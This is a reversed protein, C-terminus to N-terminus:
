GGQTARILLIKDGEQVVRNWDSQAIVENNVAVALGQSDLALQMLTKRIDIGKELAVLEDNIHVQIM